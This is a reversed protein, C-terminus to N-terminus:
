DSPSHWRKGKHLTSKVSIASVAKDPSSPTPVSAYNAGLHAHEYFLINLPRLFIKQGRPFVNQVYNLVIPCLKFFNPGRESFEEGGLYKISESV